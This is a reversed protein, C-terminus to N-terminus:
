KGLLFEAIKGRLPYAILTLTIMGAVSPLQWYQPDLGGGSLMFVLEDIFLGFGISSLWLRLQQKKSIFFAALLLLVGIWFHNIVVDNIRLHIESNIKRAIRIAIITLVALLCFLNEKKM